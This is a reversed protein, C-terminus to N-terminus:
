ALAINYLGEIEELAIDNIRELIQLSPLLYTNFSKFQICITLNPM